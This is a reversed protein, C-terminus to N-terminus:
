QDNLLLVIMFLQFQFKFGNLKFQLTVLDKKKVRVFVSCFKSNIQYWFPFYCSLRSKKYIFSENLVLDSNACTVCTVNIWVRVNQCFLSLYVKFVIGPLLCFPFCIFTSRTGETVRKKRKLEKCLRDEVQHSLFVCLQCVTTERGRVDTVFDQCPDYHGSTLWSSTVSLEIM